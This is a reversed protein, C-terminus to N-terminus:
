LMKLMVELFKDAFFCQAQYTLNLGDNPINILGDFKNFKEAMDNLTCGNQEAVERIINNYEDWIDVNYTWNMHVFSKEVIVNDFPPLTNFIIKSKYHRLVKAMYDINGRYEDPSCVPKSYIDNNQHMDNIGILVSTIMPKESVVLDYIHQITQNSNDGTAAACVMKIKTYPEFVKRLVNFFSQYESVFQDGIFVFTAELKSLKEDMESKYKKNIFNVSLQLEEDLQRFVENVKEMPYGYVRSIKKKDNEMPVTHKYLNMRTIVYSNFFHGSYRDKNKTM